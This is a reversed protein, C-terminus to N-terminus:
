FGGQEPLPPIDYPVPQFPGPLVPAPPAIPAPTPIYPSPPATGISALQPLNQNFFQPINIPTSLHSIDGIGPLSVKTGLPTLSGLMKSLIDSKRTAIDQQRLGVDQQTKWIDFQSGAAAIKAQEEGQWRRFDAGYTSEWADQNERFLEIDAKWQRYREESPLQAVKLRFQYSDMLYRGIEMPSPPARGARPEPIDGASYPVWEVQNYIDVTKRWYTVRGTAPDVVRRINDEFDGGEAPGGTPPPVDPSAAPRPGRAMESPPISM